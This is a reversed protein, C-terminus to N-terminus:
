KALPDNIVSSGRSKFLSFTSISEIAIYSAGEVVVVVESEGIFVEKGVKELSFLIFVVVVVLVSGFVGVGVLGTGESDDDLVVFLLLLLLLLLLILLLPIIKVGDDGGGKIAVVFIVGVVSTLVSTSTSLLLEEGLLLGVAVVGVVVRVGVRTVEGLRLGSVVSGVFGSEVDALDSDSDLDGGLCCGSVTPDMFDSVPFGDEEDEELGGGEVEVEVVVLEFFTFAGPNLGAALPVPFLVIPILLKCHHVM